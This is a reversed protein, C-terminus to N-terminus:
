ISALNQMLILFREYRMLSYHGSRMLLNLIEDEPMELALTRSLQVSAQDHADIDVMEPIDGVVDSPVVALEAYGEFEVVYVPSRGLLYAQSKLFAMDKDVLRYTPLTTTKGEVLWDDSKIDRRAGWRAGSAPM